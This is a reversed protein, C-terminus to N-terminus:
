RTSPFGKKNGQSQKLLETDATIDAFIEV